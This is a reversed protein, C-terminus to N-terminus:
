GGGRQLHMDFHRLFKRREEGTVGDFAFTVQLRPMRLLAIVRPPLASWTLVLRGSGIAVRLSRAGEASLTHGGTAGPMWALWERETCGYEREFHEREELIV